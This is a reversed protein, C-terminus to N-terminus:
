EISVPCNTAVILDVMGGNILIPLVFMDVKSVLKKSSDFLPPLMDIHLDEESLKSAYLGNSCNIFECVSDFSEEDLTDFREKAFPESVNLLEDGKSALAVFIDQNGELHQYALNGFSYEKTKYFPNLIIENSIFRIINRVTLSVCDSVYPAYSDIFIPIIRDIDGSKLADIDDTSYNGDNQFNVLQEEIEEITMINNDTMAQVFNIFPNGQKSLLYNVEENLLYGKSIAIDGFRQDSKKQLENIEDAQKNTILKEAVAISGLKTPTSKQYKIVKDLSSQSIRGKKVLYHGMYHGFM